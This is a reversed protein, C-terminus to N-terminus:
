SCIQRARKFFAASWLPNEREATAARPRSMLPWPAGRAACRGRDVRRHGTELVVALAKADGPAVLMAEEGTSAVNRYGPLDSAVVATGAAMGELLVVGFSEGRLSPVCFVDAGRLRALKEDDDIAGLWEIRSDGQSLSELRRTDPGTGIVWLRVDDPMHQMADILVSLGKRPEHRGVFLITPAETPMAEGSSFRKVEIGNWLTEYEGGLAESAMELADASVVARRSVRNALIKVGPVHYAMSGGAAHWTAVVPVSNLTLVAQCPGPVIPEHLHVVDFQEDRLVRITRLICAVDPAIPAVSGNADTPISAGM